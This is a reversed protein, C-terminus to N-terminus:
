IDEEDYEDNEGEFDILDGEDLDVTSKPRSGNQRCWIETLMSPQTADEVAKDGRIRMFRPFRLSLGRTGSVEGLAAVSVPSITIDAGRIEWVEGPLFYIAPASVGGYDVHYSGIPERSCTPSNEPYREGLATYFADTFGSMCKCMAVLRALKPDWVALLIPSWWKAKRGNGHWAGVPVLDLSDGIGDVYDKKLKLWASTRKDPEYTAPFPKRRGGKKKSPSLSVDDLGVEGTAGGSDLLKIMLGECQSELAHEWFTEVAERGDPGDSDVNEVFQLRAGGRIPPMVRTSFKQRLTARRERFSRSLLAEGNLYMIDFVFLSVALKIAGVQVNKRPRNSLEQFSRASNEEADWAVIEADLIFSELTNDVHDSLEPESLCDVALEVIDPYKETMDELHRSFIKITPKTQGAEYFAHVQARQGDYKFEASFTVGNIREYIEDLTRMPSGLAPHLPIGVTLPVKQALSEWGGALFAKVIDNYNPHQVFTTRLLAEADLMKKIVERRAKDIIESKKNAKEPPTLIRDLLDESAFYPSDTPLASGRPRTLVGAKALATLMTTRVAGVRLHMSLTRSIFRVEEGRASLLLHEVVGQRLKAAGKGKAQSIKILSAYVGQITLPLLPVLTRVSAKAAFAVDGPDGYTNYLKRLAAASLGSVAQLARSIVAPGLGLEIPIYPPALTNSIMYMSPIISDSDHVILVRLANTLTNLILTRSKTQSLLVLVHSLFAYPATKTIWPHLPIQFLLPDLSLDPM